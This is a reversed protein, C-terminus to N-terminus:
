IMIENESSSDSNNSNLDPISDDSDASLIYESLSQTNTINRNQESIERSIRIFNDRIEEDIINNNHQNLLHYDNQNEEDSIPAQNTSEESNKKDEKILYSNKEPMIFDYPPLIEGCIIRIENIQKLFDNILRYGWIHNFNYCTNKYNMYQSFHNYYPIYGHLEEAFLGNLFIQNFDGGFKYLIRLKVPNNSWLLVVAAANFCYLQTPNIINDNHTFNILLKTAENGHEINYSKLFHLLQTDPKFMIIFHLCIVDYIFSPQEFNCLYKIFETNIATKNNINLEEAILQKATLLSIYNPLNSQTLRYSRNIKMQQRTFDPSCYNM